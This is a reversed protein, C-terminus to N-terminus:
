ASPHGPLRSAGPKAPHLELAPGAERYMRAEPLDFDVDGLHLTLARGYVVAAELEGEALAMERLYYNNRFYVSVLDFRRAIANSRLALHKALAIKRGRYAVKALSGLARAAERPYGCTRAESLAAELYGQATEIEGAELLYSGLDTQARCAGLRDPVERFLQMSRVMCKAARRYEGARALLEGRLVAFRAQTSLSGGPALLISEAERMGASAVSPRRLRLACTIFQHWTTLRHEIALAREALLHESEIKATEFCGLEILAAIRLSLLLTTAETPAGGAAPKFVASLLALTELYKESSFSDRAAQVLDEESMGGRECAVSAVKLALDFEEVM